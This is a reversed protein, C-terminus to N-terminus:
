PVKLYLNCKFVFTLLFMFIDTPLRHQKRKMINRMWPQITSLCVRLDEELTRLWSRTTIKKTNIASLGTEYLYTSLTLRVEIAKKTIISYEEQLPLWFLTMDTSLHKPKLRGDNRIRMRKPLLYYQRSALVVWVSRECLGLFICLSPFYKEINKSLPSLSQRM